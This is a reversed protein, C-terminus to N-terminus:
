EVKHQEVKNISFYIDGHHDDRMADVDIYIESKKLDYLRQLHEILINVVDDETFTGKIETVVKKVVTTEM